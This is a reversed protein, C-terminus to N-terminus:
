NKVGVFVMDTLRSLITNGYEPKDNWMDLTSIISKGVVTKHEKNNNDKHKISWVNHLILPEGDKDGVYLTVHGSLYLITVFPIAKSIIKKKKQTDTLGKLSITKWQNKQAKSNRSLFIGFPTFFDKTLLSCDRYGDKGGWGYMENILNKTSLMFNDINMPQGMDKIFENQDIYRIQAQADYTRISLINKGVSDSFPLLTGFKIDGIFHNNKYLRNHEQINIQYNNTKFKNIFTEDVFAIDEISVWGSSVSSDIYVWTKDKSYHSIFIPTNIKISSNMNYDFPYGEGIKDPNLYFGENTPFVKIETESTIIAKKRMTNYQEFNSNEVQKEFWEREIKVGSYAYFQKKVYGSGWQAEAKSNSMTNQEWPSFFNDLFYQNNTNSVLNKYYKSHKHSAKEFVEFLSEPSTTYTFNSALLTNIGTFFM